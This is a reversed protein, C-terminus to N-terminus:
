DSPTFTKKPKKNRSSSRSRMGGEEQTLPPPMANGQSELNENLNEFSSDAQSSDKRPRKLSNEREKSLKSLWGQEKLQSYNLLTSDILLNENRVKVQFGAARAQSACGLLFKRKARATKTLDDSVSINTGKLKSVNKMVDAKTGCKVFSVFLPRKGFNKGMRYAQGIDSRDINVNLKYRSFNVFDNIPENGGEVESLGFVIINSKRINNELEDIKLNLEKNENELETIKNSASTLDTRLGTVEDTLKSVRSDVNNIAKLTENKSKTIFEMMRSEFAVFYDQTDKDLPGPNVEVGGIFLLTFVVFLVFIMNGVHLPSDNYNVNNKYFSCNTNNVNRNKVANHVYSGIRARWVEISIGM